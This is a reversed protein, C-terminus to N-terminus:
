LEVIQGRCDFLSHVMLKRDGTADERQGAKLGLAEDLLSDGRITEDSHVQANVDAEEFGEGPDFFASPQVDEKYPLKRL